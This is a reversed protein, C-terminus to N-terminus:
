IPKAFDGMRVAEFPMETEPALDEEIVDGRSFLSLGNGTGAERIIRKAPRTRRREITRVTALHDQIHVVEGRGRVLELQGLDEGTDPDTIHPGEGFLKDGPKVGDRAGRNIVVEVTPYADVAHVIKALRTEGKVDNM